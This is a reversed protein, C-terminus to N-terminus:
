SRWAHEPCLLAPGGSSRLAQRAEGLGARCAAVVGFVSLKLRSKLRGSAGVQLMVILFAFPASGLRPIYEKPAAAAKRARKGRGQGEREM